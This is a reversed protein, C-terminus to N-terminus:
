DFSALLITGCSAIFGITFAFGNHVYLGGIMMILGCVGMLILFVNQLTVFFKKM